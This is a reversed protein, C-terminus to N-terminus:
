LFLDRHRHKRFCRYADLRFRPYHGQARRHCPAPLPRPRHSGAQAQVHRVARFDRWVPGAVAIPPSQRRDRAVAPAGARGRLYGRRPHHRQRHHFRGYGAHRCHQGQGDGAGGRGGKVRDHRLPHPPQQHQRFRLGHIDRGRRRNSLLFYAGCVLDGWRREHHGLFWEPYGFVAAEARVRRRACPRPLFLPGAGDLQHHM